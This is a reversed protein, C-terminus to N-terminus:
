QLFVMKDIQEGALRKTTKCRQSSCTILRAGSTEQTPSDEAAVDPNLSM